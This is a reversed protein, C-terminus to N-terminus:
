LLFSQFYGSFFLFLFFCVFFLCFVFLFCFYPCLVLFIFISYLFTSISYCDVTMTLLCIDIVFNQSNLFTWVTVSTFISRRRTTSIYRTNRRRRGRGQGENEEEKEWGKGEDRGKRGDKRFLPPLFIALVATKFCCIRLANIGYMSLKLVQLEATLICLMRIHTRMYEDDQRFDTEDYQIM